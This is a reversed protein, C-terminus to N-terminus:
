FFPILDGLNLSKNARAAYLATPTVFFFDMTTIDMVRYVYRIEDYDTVVRPKITLKGLRVELRVGDKVVLEPTTHKASHWTVNSLGLFPIALNALAGEVTIDSDDEIIARDALDYGSVEDNMDLGDSHILLWKREVFKM